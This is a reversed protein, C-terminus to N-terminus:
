DEVLYGNIDGMPETHRNHANFRLKVDSKAVVKLGPELTVISSSGNRSTFGWARQLQFVGNEVRILLNFVGEKIGISSLHPVASLNMKMIVLTKAAPVTYIAMQTKNFGSLIKGVTDVGNKLSLDGINFGGSGATIVAMRNVRFFSNSTTVGTTGNLNVTETIEVYSSNLGYIMVQWAGTGTTNVDNADSSSMTLTTASLIYPYDGGGDWVDESSISHINPNRGWKGFSTTGTVNGLAVELDYDTLPSTIVVGPVVDTGDPNVVARAAQGPTDTSEILSANDKDSLNPSIAM